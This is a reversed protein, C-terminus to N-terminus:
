RLAYQISKRIGQAFYDPSFKQIHELGARGMATLDIEDSSMKLMLDTLQKKNHPDFGFGNIGEVVLDECCGCRNSVVVPLGAAMAENIVLGWQEHTSAHVFCEAHAFYPLLENQQLFGTLHVSDSLNLLEITTEIKNRLEGDGCLVLDWANSGSKRKYEAYAHLLFIINKKEIFRNISLFYKSKFPRKSKRIECPNFNENGVINYGLAIAKEEMGLKILYRKQPKGGVLAANYFRLITSKIYEKWWIRTNDIETSESFLITKKKNILCRLLAFLMTPRFYGAIAVFDPDLDNLKENLLRILEIIPFKELATDRVLSVISVNNKSLDNEWPYEEEKRSLELGYENWSDPKLTKSVAELRAIHYPGYNSFLILIKNKPNM